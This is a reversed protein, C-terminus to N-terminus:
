ADLLYEQMQYWLEVERQDHKPYRLPFLGGRGDPEYTRWIVTDLVEDVESQNYKPRDTCDQLGLNEILHWFWVPPHGEGEFALRRSLGVLIELLSCDREMWVKYPRPHIDSTDLWEDRLDLGDRIRNDDNPILWVFEKSYLQRFLDWYTRSKNRVRVGGVQDYLWSLYFNDLTEPM